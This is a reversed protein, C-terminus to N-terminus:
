GRSGVGVLEQTGKRFYKIESLFTAGTSVVVESLLSLKGQTSLITIKPQLECSLFLLNDSEAGLSLHRPGHGLLQLSKGMDVKLNSNEADFAYWYVWDTGLDAVFVAKNDYSTVTCHPHPAEQRDPIVGSAGDHRLFNILKLLSGDKELLFVAFDGSSYNTVFLFRKSRDISIHCASRGQTSLQSLL